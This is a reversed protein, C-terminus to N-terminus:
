KFSWYNLLAGQCLFFLRKLTANNREKGNLVHNAAAEVQKETLSAIHDGLTTSNMQSRCM